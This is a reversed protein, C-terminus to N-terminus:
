IPDFGKQRLQSELLAIRGRLNAIEADKTIVLAELITIRNSLGEVTKSLSEITNAMTEKRKPNLLVYTMWSGLAALIFGAIWQFIEWTM